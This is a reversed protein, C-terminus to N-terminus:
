LVPQKLSMGILEDVLAQLTQSRQVTPTLNIQGYRSEFELGLMAAVSAAMVLRLTSRPLFGVLRDYLRRTHRVLKRQKRAPLQEFSGDDIMGGLRASHKQLKRLLSSQEERTM